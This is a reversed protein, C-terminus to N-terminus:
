YVERAQRFRGLEGIGCPRKGRAQNTPVAASRTYPRRKRCCGTASRSLVSISSIGASDAASCGSSTPCLASGPHTELVAALTIARRSRRASVSTADQGPEMLCAARGGRHPVHPRHARHRRHVSASSANTSPRTPLYSGLSIAVCNRTRKPTARVEVATISRRLRLPRERHICPSLRRSSSRIKPTSWRVIRRAHTPTPSNLPWRQDPRPGGGPNAIREPPRRPM